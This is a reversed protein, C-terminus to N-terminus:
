KRVLPMYIRFVPGGGTGTRFTWIPGSVEPNLGDNAIVQWEYTTNPQLISPACTNLTTSCWQEWQPLGQVGGMVQYTVTDGNPDGGTWSLLPTRSVGSAGAAPSPNSPVYPPQNTINYPRSFESTDNCSLSTSTDTSVPAAPDRQQGCSGTNTATINPGSLFGNFTWAGSGNATTYGHYTAGEDASDSYVHIACWACGTGSAGSANASTIAPSALGSNGGNALEIGSLTNHHISNATISNGTATAGEIRVGDYGNYTISNGKVRNGSANLVYLGFTGNDSITNDEILNGNAMFIYIGRQNNKSITNSILGSGGIQNNESRNNITVGASGNGVDQSGVAPLGIINGGVRNNNSGFGDIMIGGTTNGSIYNGKASTDGGITNDHAGNIIIVGYDNPAESDGTTSLGIWNGQVVNHHAGSNGLYVGNSTNSSLVNRQGQLTGGITNYASYIAIASFCNYIFLGYVEANIGYISLCTFSRDVGNIIVGPQNHATNWMSSADLRIQSNMKLAAQTADLYISMQSAFTITDAGSLADAEEIAARITCTNYWSACIGDGPNKDHANADDTIDDVVFGAARVPVPQAGWLGCLLALLLLSRSLIFYLHPTRGPTNM